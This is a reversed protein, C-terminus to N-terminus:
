QVQVYGQKKAAEFQKFPLFFKTKGGDNSVKIKGEPPLGKIPPKNTPTTTPTTSAPPTAGTRGPQSIPLSDGYIANSIQQHEEQTPGAGRFFDKYDNSKIMPQTITFENSKGFKIYKGLQPNRAAFEKAANFQRVKTGQPTEGKNTVSGSPTGKTKRDEEGKIPILEKRNDQRTEETKRTQSGTEDIRALAHKQQLDLKDADSLSGTSIGTNTVEGTNPDAILVTPGSFDFKKNPHETKFRYVAARDERIAANRENTTNRMDDRKATLEQNVTQTALTRENANNGKELTAAAQAPGIKQKYQAMEHNYPAMLANTGAEGGQTAAIIAAALSRLKGQAHYQPPNDIMSNFRDSAGTEPTYLEKMRSAPDYDVPGPQPTPLPQRGGFDPLAFNNGMAPSDAYESSQDLQPNFINQM